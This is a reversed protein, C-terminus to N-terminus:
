GLQASKHTPGLHVDVDLRPLRPADLANYYQVQSRLWMSCLEGFFGLELDIM